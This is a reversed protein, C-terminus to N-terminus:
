VLLETAYYETAYDKEMRGKRKQTHLSFNTSIITIRDYFNEM